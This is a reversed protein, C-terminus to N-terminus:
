FVTFKIHSIYVEEDVVIMEISYFQEPNNYMPQKWLRLVRVKVTYDRRALDLDKLYTINSQVMEFEASHSKPNLYADM